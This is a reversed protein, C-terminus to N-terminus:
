IIEYYVVNLIPHLVHLEFLLVGSEECGYYFDAGSPFVVFFHVFDDFFHFFSFAELFLFEGFDM